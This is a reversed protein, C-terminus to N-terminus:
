LLICSQLDCPIYIADWLNDVTKRKKRENAYEMGGGVIPTACIIFDYRLGGFLCAVFLTIKGYGGDFTWEVMGGGFVNPTTRM